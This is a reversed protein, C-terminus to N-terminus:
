GRGFKFDQMVGHYAKKLNGNAKKSGFIANNNRNTNKKLNLIFM